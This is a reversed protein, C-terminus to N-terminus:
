KVPAYSACYLRPISTSPRRSSSSRERQTSKYSSDVWNVTVFAEFWTEPTAFQPPTSFSLRITYGFM